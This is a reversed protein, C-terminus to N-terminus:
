TELSMEDFHWWERGVCAGARVCCPTMSSEPFKEINWFWLLIDCHLSLYKDDLYLSKAGTFYWWNQYKTIEWVLRTIKGVQGLLHAGIRPPIKWPPFLHGKEELINTVISLLNRWKRYSNAKNNTKLHLRNSFFKFHMKRNRRISLRSPIM